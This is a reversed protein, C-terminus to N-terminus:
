EFIAQMMDAMTSREMGDKKRRNAAATRTGESKIAAPDISGEGPPAHRLRAEARESMTASSVEPGWVRSVSSLSSDSIGSLM